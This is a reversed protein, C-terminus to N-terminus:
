FKTQGGEKSPLIWSFSVPFHGLLESMGPSSGERTATQSSRKVGPNEKGQLQPLFKRWGGGVTATVSESAHGTEKLGFSKQKRTESHKRCGSACEIKKTAGLRFM